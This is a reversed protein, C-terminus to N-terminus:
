MLQVDDLLWRDASRVLSMRMRNRDVRPEPSNTNTITQDVFLTVVANQQDLSVIGQQLVAGKSTAKFKQILKKLNASVKKYEKAFRNSSDQTVAKFNGDLNRFDYSTLHVAYQKASASAASRASKLGNEEALQFGLYGCTALLAVIVFGALTSRIGPKKFRLKETPGTDAHQAHDAEDSAVASFEPTVRTDNSTESSGVVTSTKSADSASGESSADVGIDKTSAEAADAEDGVDSEAAGVAETDATLEQDVASESSQANPDSM